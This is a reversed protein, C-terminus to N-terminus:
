NLRQYYHFDLSFDLYVELIQWFISRVMFNAEDLHKSSTGKSFYQYSQYICLAAEMCKKMANGCIDTGNNRPMYFDVCGCSDLTYNTLCELGCNEPNYIKFYKLTREDSFYCQRVEPSFQKVQKSTTMMKPQVFVQVSIDLPVDIYQKKMQPITHPTHLAVRFGQTERFCLHDIDVGEQLLFVDLSNDVGALLARRPYTHRGNSEPYGEDISWDSRNQHDHYYEYHVVDDKFVDHRNLMNFTYCIGDDLIIPVFNNSCVIGKKM